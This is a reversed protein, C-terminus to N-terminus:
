EVMGQRAEERSLHDHPQERLQDLLRKAKM